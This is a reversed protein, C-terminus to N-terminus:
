INEENLFMNEPANSQRKPPPAPPPVGSGSPRARGGTWGGCPRCPCPRRPHRTLAWALDGMRVAEPVNTTTNSHETILGLGGPKLLSACDFNITIARRREGGILM